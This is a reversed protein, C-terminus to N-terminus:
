NINLLQNIKPRDFGIVVQGNILTQPVGQQGSRKVMEQAASQDKSVDIESYSIGKETLYSKLSNCYTCTPTTYVIINSKSNGGSTSTTTFTELELVTKYYSESQCGKIINIISNDKVHILTPVSTINYEKHINKVASVDVSFLEASNNLKINNLISLACDSASSGSKYFFIFHETTLSKIKKNDSISIM